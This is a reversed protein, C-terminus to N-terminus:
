WYDEQTLEAVYFKLVQDSIIQSCMSYISLEWLQVNLIAGDEIQFLRKKECYFLVQMM